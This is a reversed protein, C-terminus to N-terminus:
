EDDRMVKLGLRKKIEHYREKLTAEHAIEDAALDDFMKKVDPDRALEAGHRYRAASAKEDLIAEELIKLLREEVLRQEPM